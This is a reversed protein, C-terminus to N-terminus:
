QPRRAPFRLIQSITASPGQPAPTTPCLVRRVCERRPSRSRDSVFIRVVSPWSAPRDDRSGPSSPQRPRLRHSSRGPADGSRDIALPVLEPELREGTFPGQLEYRRPGKLWKRGLRMRVWGSAGLRRRLRVPAAGRAAWRRGREPRGATRARGTCLGARVTSSPAGDQPPRPPFRLIHFFTGPFGQRVPSEPCLVRRVCERRPARSRDSVFIRVTVAWSAPLVGRLGPSPAAPIPPAPRHTPLTVLVLRRHVVPGRVQAPAQRAVM